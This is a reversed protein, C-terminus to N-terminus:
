PGFIRIRSSAVEENSVVDSRSTCGRQLGQHLPPCRDRDGVPQRRDQRGVHDEDDVPALDDLRPACSLLQQRERARRVSYWCGNRDSRTWTSCGRYCGAPVFGDPAGRRSDTRLSGRMCRLPGGGHLQTTHLTMRDQRPGLARGRSTAHHRPRDGVRPMRIFGLMRIPSSPGRASRRQTSRAASSWPPSGVIAGDEVCRPNGDALGPGPVDAIRAPLNVRVLGRYAEATVLGRNRRARGRNGRPDGDRVLSGLGPLDVDNVM